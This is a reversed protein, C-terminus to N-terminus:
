ENEWRKVVKLCNKFHRYKAAEINEVNAMAVCHLTVGCKAKESAKGQEIGIDYATIMVFGNIIMLVSVLLAQCIAKTNYSM